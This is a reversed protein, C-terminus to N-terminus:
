LINMSKFIHVNLFRVKVFEPVGPCNLEQALFFSADKSASESKTMDSQPDKRHNSCRERTMMESAASGKVQYGHFEVVKM